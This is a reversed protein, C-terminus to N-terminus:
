IKTSSKVDHRRSILKAVLSILFYMGGLDSVM